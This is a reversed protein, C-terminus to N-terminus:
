RNNVLKADTIYDHMEGLSTAESGIYKKKSYVIVNTM